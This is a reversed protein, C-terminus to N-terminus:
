LLLLTDADLSLPADGQFSSLYKPGVEGLCVLSQNEVNFCSSSSVFPLIDCSDPSERGVEHSTGTLAGVKQSPPINHLATSDDESLRQRDPTRM